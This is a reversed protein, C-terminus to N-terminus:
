FTRNLKFGPFLALVRYWNVLNYYVRGQLYGLMTEFVVRNSAIRSQPVGALSCFERYVEAYVACACSFTLPATIGSYSEVINANDWLTRKGDRLATIPRSQLLFLDPGRMAWEIDQPRSFHDEAAIALEAIRRLEEAALLPRSGSPVSEITDGERTLKYRDGEVEGAVLKEALGSVASIVVAKSIQDVPDRSFAVGAKDAPVMQQVLVAPSLATSEEARLQRYALVSEKFASRHVAVIKELVKDGPVNLYSDLQGAFSRNHSDEEVASSRVAFPGEGLSPLRESIEAFTEPSLRGSEFAPPSVVFWPPVPVIAGIRALGWAKGGMLARSPEDNPGLLLSLVM